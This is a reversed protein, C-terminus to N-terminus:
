VIMQGKLCQDAQPKDTSTNSGQSFYFYTWCKIHPFFINLYNFELTALHGTTLGCFFTSVGKGARGNGCYSHSRPCARRFIFGIAKPPISCICSANSILWWTPLASVQSKERLDQAPRTLRTSAKWPNETVVQGMKKKKKLDCSLCLLHEKDSTGLVGWNLILGGTRSSYTCNSGSNADTGLSCSHVISGPTTASCMLNVETQALWPRPCLRSLLTPALGGGAWVLLVEGSESFWLCHWFPSWASLEWCLTQEMPGCAACPPTTVFGLRM